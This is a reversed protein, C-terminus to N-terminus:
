GNESDNKHCLSERLQKIIELYQPTVSIEDTRPYEFPVNIQTYISFPIPTSVIIRTGLFIAEHLDHTVIIITQKFEQWLQQVLEYMEYRTDVDLKAFPEDLLLLSPRSVLCRALALRKRMGGSLEIPYKNRSEWLGIRKLMHEVDKDPPCKSKSATKKINDWTNYWPFADYDQFLFRLDNEDKHTNYIIEGSNAEQLNAILRLLTSKGCGSPGVIAVIEGQQIEFDLHELVPDNNYGFCVNKLTIAAM